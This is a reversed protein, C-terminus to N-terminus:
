RFTYNYDAEEINFNLFNAYHIEVNQFNKFKGRLKQVLATDQEIAIVRGAVKALEKTIIGAGPGIEYVVDTKDLNSSSVLSAVLHSDKLFNQALLIRKRVM